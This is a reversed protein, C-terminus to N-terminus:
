WESISEGLMSLGLIPIYPLASLAILIAGIWFQTNNREGTQKNKSSMILFIGILAPVALLAMSTMSGATTKLGFQFYDNKPM